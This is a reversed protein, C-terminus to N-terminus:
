KGGWVACTYERLAQEIESENLKAVMEDALIAGYSGTLIRRLEARRNKAKAVRVMELVEDIATKNKKAVM